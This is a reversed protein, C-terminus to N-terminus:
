PWAPDEQSRRHTSDPVATGRGSSGSTPAAAPLEPSSRRRRFLRGRSRGDGLRVLSMVIWSAMLLLGSWMAAEEPHGAEVAQFIAVPVTLTKGPISGSVMFTAGFEGLSRAFALAVGGAIGPLATPCAVRLFVRLESAGLSRACWLLRVDVQEFAGRVARYLLPFSVVTAAIVAATATFLLSAGPRGLLLPYPGNRGLLVVLVLGAVTPPLVMPLSLLTDLLTRLSGRTRTVLWAAPVGIVLATLTSLAAIRLSLLFPSLDV